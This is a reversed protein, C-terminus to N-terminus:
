AILWVQLDMVNTLTPGTRLLDGTAQLFHYSDNRRLFDSAAMRNNKGRDITTGDVIAGAADTPGDTGDTGASLAVVGDWGDMEMAAALAYEQNRGGAGSGCVTVTTEGGALVCAPRQAPVLGQRLRDIQAAHDAAVARSEGEVANSIIRTHYGLAEARRLAAALASRNNGVIVNSVKRFVGSGPKPTEEIGGSAGHALLDIVPKPIKERLSYRQIIELCDAYTTPDAVTPGSAIDALSDSVVDSLSLTLLTAPAGLAALRGGKLKSIHKRVANVEGITAGSALLAQTTCQKDALTIGAAPAPLLASAGGSLLLVILDAAGARRFMEMVRRAAEMGAEDPVPHGAEVIALGRLPLGHGYKVVVLGDAIRDGFLEEVALGMPAAAKGAGVVAVKHFQNLDYRRGGVNFGESDVRVHNQLAARPDAARLGADYIERAHARLEAVARMAM